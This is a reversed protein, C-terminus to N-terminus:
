ENTAKLPICDLIVYSKDVTPEIKNKEVQCDGVTEFYRLTMMSPNDTLAIAVLAFLIVSSSM